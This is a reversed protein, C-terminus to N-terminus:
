IGSAELCEVLGSLFHLDFKLKQYVKTKLKHEMLNEDGERDKKYKQLNEKARLVKCKIPIYQFRELIEQL